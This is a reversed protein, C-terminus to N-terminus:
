WWQIVPLKRKDQEEWDYKVNYDDDANFRSVRISGRRPPTTTTIEESCQQLFDQVCGISYDQWDKGIAQLVSVPMGTFSFRFVLQDDVSRSEFRAPCWYEGYTSKLAGSFEVARVDADSTKLFSKLSRLTVVYQWGAPLKKHSINVIIEAPM